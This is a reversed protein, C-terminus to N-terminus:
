LIAKLIAKNPKKPSAADAAPAIAGVAVVSVLTAAVVSTIRIRIRSMQHEKPYNGPTDGNM